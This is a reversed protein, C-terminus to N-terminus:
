AIANAIAARIADDDDDAPRAGADRRHGADSQTDTARVDHRSLRGCTTWRDDRSRRRTRSPRATAPMPEELMYAGADGDGGARGAPRCGAVGARADWSDECRRPADRHLARAAICEGM